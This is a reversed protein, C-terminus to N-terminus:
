TPPQPARDMQSVSTEIIKVPYGYSSCLFQANEYPKGIHRYVGDVLEVPVNCEACIATAAQPAPAAAKASGGVERGDFRHAVEPGHEEKECQFPGFLDQCRM